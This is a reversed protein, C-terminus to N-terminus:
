LKASEGGLKKCLDQKKVLVVWGSQDRPYRSNKALIQEKVVEMTTRVAVAGALAM